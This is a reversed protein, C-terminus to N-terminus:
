ILTAINPPLYIDYTMTKCEVRRCGHEYQGSPASEVIRIITGFDIRASPALATAVAGCDLRREAAGPGGDRPFRRRTAVRWHPACRAHGPKNALEGPCLTLARRYSVGSAIRNDQRVLALRNRANHDNSGTVSSGVTRVLVNATAANHASAAPKASACTWSGLRARLM